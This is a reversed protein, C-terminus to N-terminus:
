RARRDGLLDLVAVHRQEDARDRQEVAFLDRSDHHERAVDGVETPAVPMSSDFSAVIRSIWWRTFFLRCVM